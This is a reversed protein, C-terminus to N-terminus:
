FQTNIFRRKTCYAYSQMCSVDVEGDEADTYNERYVAGVSALFEKANKMLTRFIINPALVVMQYDDYPQM